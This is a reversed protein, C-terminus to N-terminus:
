LISEIARLYPAVGHEGVRDPDHRALLSAAVVRFIAARIMLQRLESVDELHDLLSRDANEWALADFAVIAKAYAASRFYPSFDIVAPALDDAFLVNGCLDGHIIQSAFPAVPRRAAVLRDLVGAFQSSVEVSAEVSWAIRDASAWPDTRAALFPPASVTALAAHLADSVVFIEPWRGPEHVGDLREWATWSQVVRSGDQARLPRALRFDREEIELSRDAIWSAEVADDAPKLVARATAFARAEGGSLRTLPGRVAFAALVESPPPGIETM